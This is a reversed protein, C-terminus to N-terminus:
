ITIYIEGCCKLSRNAVILHKKTWATIDCLIGVTGYFHDSLM